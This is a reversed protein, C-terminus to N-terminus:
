WSYLVGLGSGIAAGSIYVLPLSESGYKGIFLGAAVTEFWILGMSTATYSAFMLLTRESEEPRLNFGQLIRQGWGGRSPQWTKVEM